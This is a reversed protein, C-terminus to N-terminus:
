LLVVGQLGPDFAASPGYVLLPQVAPSQLTWTTGDYTWTNNPNVDALGGFMVVQGTSTNTAVAALSRAFPVTPPNLQTWDSGNWQWMTLQYFHGDFGGFLDARGNPDPFLMPGTVAPPNHQPRAQTWQLTSGDWLWTDGLYNMGDFGGFLVVKQAVSDYTMQAATRAPPASQTAIQTWTTGDFSWTDNLYGTGDFGGFAIIKGSVPDYTMALYSRAPPADNPSLEIWDLLSFHAAAAPAAFAISICCCTLIVSAHSFHRVQTLKM